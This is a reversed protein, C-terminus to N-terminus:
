HRNVPPGVRRSEIRHKIALTATKGTAIVDRIVKELLQSQPITTGVWANGVLAVFETNSLKRGVNDYSLFRGGRKGQTVPDCALRRWLDLPIYMGPFLGKDDPNFIIRPCLKLFFPNTHLRFSMTSEDPPLKGLAKLLVDMRAIEESLKDNKRWRFEPGNSGRDMSKYQVLVFSHYTEDYYILDAGTQEELKLRNAMVVTLRHSPNSADQFVKASFQLNRIAEFGPLTSFDSILAADERVYAQPLGDLFSRPETTAPSWALVDEPALGAIQLATALTEKQLALNRRSTSSLRSVIGAWRESFRGLRNALDPQLDLLIDVVAGLTKPPLKGGYSLIRALHTRVRAPAHELLERFRIPRGLREISRMTLVVLGRGASNGKRGDAVHTIAGDAFCAFVVLPARRSHDFRPVPEGSAPETTSYWSGFDEALLIERRDQPVMLVYGASSIM